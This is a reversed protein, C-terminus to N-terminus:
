TSGQEEAIIARNGVEPASRCNSSRLGVDIQARVRGTEFVLSIRLQRSKFKIVTMNQVSGYGHALKLQGFGPM